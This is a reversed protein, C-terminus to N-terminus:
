RSYPHPTGASKITTKIKGPGSQRPGPPHQPPPVPNTQLAPGKPLGGIEKLDKGLSIAAILLNTDAVNFTQPQNARQNSDNDWNERMNKVLEIMNNAIKNVSAIQKQGQDLSIQQSKIMLQNEAKEIDPELKTRLYDPVMEHNFAQVRGETLKALEEDTDPSLSLPLLLRNRLPPTKDSKLIKMLNNIQGSFLAFSDLVSPWNITEYENELRLIFAQLANKLDQMRVILADVAMDLQKEERDM